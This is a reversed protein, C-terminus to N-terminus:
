QNRKKELFDRVLVHVEGLLENDDDENEFCIHSIGQWNTALTAGNLEEGREAYFRKLEASYKEFATHTHTANKAEKMVEALKRYDGSKDKLSM